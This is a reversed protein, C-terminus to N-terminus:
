VKCQKRVTLVGGVLPKTGERLRPALSSALAFGVTVAKNCSKPERQGSSKVRQRDLFLSHFRAKENEM